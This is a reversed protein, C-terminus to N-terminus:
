LNKERKMNLPTSLDRTSHDGKLYRELFETM